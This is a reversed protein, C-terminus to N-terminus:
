VFTTPDSILRPHDSVPYGLLDHNMLAEDDQGDQWQLRKPTTRWGVMRRRKVLTLGLRDIEASLYPGAFGPLNHLKRGGLFGVQLSLVESLVSPLSAFIVCFEDFKEM